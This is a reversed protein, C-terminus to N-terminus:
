IKIKQFIHHRLKMKCKSDLEYGCFEFIENEDFNTSKWFIHYFDLIEFDVIETMNKPFGGVKVFDLHELKAAVFKIRFAFHLQSVM